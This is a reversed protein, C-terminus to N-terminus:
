RAEGERRVAEEAAERLVEWARQVEPGLRATWGDVYDWAIMPTPRKLDTLLLNLCDRFQRESSSAVYWRLKQILLDDPSSVSGRVGEVIEATVRRAFGQQQAPDDPRLPFLDVKLSSDMDMFSYMGLSPTERNRFARAMAEPDIFYRDEPFHSCFETVREAPMEVVIDVDHTMRPNAWVALAVSGGIMYPVKMSELTQIVKELLDVEVSDFM